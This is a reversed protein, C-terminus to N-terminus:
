IDKGAKETIISIEWEELRPVPIEKPEVKLSKMRKLDSFATSNMQTLISEKFFTVYSLWARLAEQLQSLSLKQKRLFIYDFLSTNENLTVFQSCYLYVASIGREAMVPEMESKKYYTARPKKNEEAHAWSNTNDAISSLVEYSINLSSKRYRETDALSVAHFHSIEILKLTSLIEKKSQAESLLSRLSTTRSGKHLAHTGGIPYYIESFFDDGLKKRVEIDAQLASKRDSTMVIKEEYRRIIDLIKSSIASRIQTSCATSAWALLADFLIARQHKFASKENLVTLACEDADFQKWFKRKFESDM